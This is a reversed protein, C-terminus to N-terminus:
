LFCLVGFKGLFSCTRFIYTHKDPPLFTPVQIWGETRVERQGFTQRSNTCCNNRLSLMTNSACTHNHMISGPKKRFIGEPCFHGFITLFSGFHPKPVKIQLILDNYKADNCKRSFPSQARLYYDRKSENTTFPFNALVNFLIM